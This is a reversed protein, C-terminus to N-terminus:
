IKFLLYLFTIIVMAIMTNVIINKIREKREEHKWEKFGPDFCDADMENTCRVSAPCSSAHICDHDPYNEGLFLLILIGIIIAIIIIIIVIM